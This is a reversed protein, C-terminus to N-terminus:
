GGALRIAIEFVIIWFLVGLLLGTLVGRAPSLPDESM